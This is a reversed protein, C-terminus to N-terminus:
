LDEIMRPVTRRLSPHSRKPESKAPAAGGLRDKDEAQHASPRPQEPKPSDSAETTTPVPLVPARVPELRSPPAAVPAAPPSSATVPKPARGSHFLLFWGMVLVAAAGTAAWIWARSRARAGDDNVQFGEFPKRVKGREPEAPGLGAEGDRSMLEGATHTFTTTPRSSAVPGTDLATKSLQMTRPVSPQVSSTVGTTAEELAAVFDGINAFRDKRKKSLACLLVDEVKPHLGPVKSLLPPPPENVVQYLTSLPSEGQFPVGGALCEWTICALAWQDTTEDIDEINGKAQEPSMYAPTGLISATRTLKTTATRVKSIGFDLVKVFDIEGAAEVLYINGPKLDRHVISKAHTASLASAVQKVIHVVEKLPLRRTRRLRHDLDEGELFEMVLFPEGTPTTSFDNVQVIHPHGLGSTVRAERYFRALADPNAALERAMVKVAVHKELRLDTAGYVAGMGGQGLLGEVRYRTDLVAGVLTEAAQKETSV